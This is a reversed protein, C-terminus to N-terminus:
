GRWQSRGQNIASWGAGIDCSTSLDAGFLNPFIFVELTLHHLVPREHQQPEYAGTSKCQTIDSSQLQRHLSRSSTEFVNRFPLMPNKDIRTACCFRMGALSAVAFFKSLVCGLAKRPVSRTIGTIDPSRKYDIRRCTSVATSAPSKM